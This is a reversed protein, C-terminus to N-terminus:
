SVAEASIAVSSSHLILNGEADFVEKDHTSAIRMKYLYGVDFLDRRTVGAISIYKEDDSWGIALVKARKGLIKFSGSHVSQLVLSVDATTGVLRGYVGYAIFNGKPSLAAIHVRDNELGNPLNIKREESTVPSLLSFCGDKYSYALFNHACDCHFMSLERDTYFVQKKTAIDSIHTGSSTSYAFYKEDNSITPGSSINNVIHDELIESGRETQIVIQHYCTEDNCIRHIGVVGFTRPLPDYSSPASFHAALRSSRDRLDIAVYQIEGNDYRSCILEDDRLTMKKIAVPSQFIIKGTRSIVDCLVVRDRRFGKRIPFLVYKNSWFIPACGPYFGADFGLTLFFSFLGLTLRLPFLVINKLLIIL